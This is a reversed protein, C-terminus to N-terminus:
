KSAVDKPPAPNDKSLLSSGLDLIKGGIGGAAEKGQEVKQQAQGMITEVQEKSFKSEQLYKVLEERTFEKGAIEKLSSTDIKDPLKQLSEQTLKYVSSGKVSETTKKTLGDFWKGAEQTFHDAVNKGAETVKEQVAKGAETVQEQVVKKSDQIQQDEVGAKKLLEEAQQMKVDVNYKEKLQDVLSPRPTQEVQEVRVTEKPGDVKSNDVCGTLASLSIIGIMAYTTLKVLFPFRAALPLKAPSDSGSTSMARLEKIDNGFDLEKVGLGLIVEDRNIDIEKKTVGTNKFLQTNNVNNHSIKM